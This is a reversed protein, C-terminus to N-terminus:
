ALFRADITIRFSFTAALFPPRRVRRPPGGGECSHSCRVTCAGHRERERGREREPRQASTSRRPPRACFAPPLRPRDVHAHRRQGRCDARSTPAGCQAPPHHTAASRPGCGHAGAPPALPAPPRTADPSVSLTRLRRRCSAIRATCGGDVDEGRGVGEPTSAIRRRGMSRKSARDLDM